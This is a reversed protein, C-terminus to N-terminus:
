KRYMLITNGTQEEVYSAYVALGNKEMARRSPVNNAYCCLTPSPIGLKAAADLAWALVVTGYGKRRHRPAVSYGIHGYRYVAENIGHRIEVMGVLQGSQKECVFYTSGAPASPESGQHVRHYYAIWDHYNTFSDLRCSGHVFTEGAAFFEQMLAMARAELGPTPSIFRLPQTSSAM